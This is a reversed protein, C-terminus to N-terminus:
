DLSYKRLFRGARTRRPDDSEKLVIGGETRAEPGLGEEDGRHRMTRIKYIYFPTGQLGVRKQRFIVPGGSDLLVVAALLAWVPVALVLGVAAIVLDVGRKWPDAIAAHESEAHAQLQTSVHTLAEDRPSGDPLWGNPNNCARSKRAARLEYGPARR